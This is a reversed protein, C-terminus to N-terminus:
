AIQQREWVWAGIFALFEIAVMLYSLSGHLPYVFISSMIFIMGAAWLLDMRWHKRRLPIQRYPETQDSLLHKLKHWDAILLLINLALFFSLVYPTGRWHMSVTVMLINVIMPFMMIAGITAFRGSLVLLGIIAESYAIFRAFIGVDYEALREELWVPGIIGPFPMLKSMGGTFFIIGLFIRTSVIVFNWFGKRPFM